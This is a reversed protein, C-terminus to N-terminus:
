HVQTSALDNVPSAHVAEEVPGGEIPYARHAIGAIADKLDQETKSGKLSM